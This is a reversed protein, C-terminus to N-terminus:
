IIKSDSYNNYYNSQESKLLMVVNYYFYNQCVIKQLLLFLLFKDVSGFKSPFTSVYLLLNLCTQLNTAVPIINYECDQCTHIM